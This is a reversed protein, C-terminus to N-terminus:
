KYCTHMSLSYFFQTNELITKEIKELYKNHTMEVLKCYYFFLGNDGVPSRNEGQKAYFIKLTPDGLRKHRVIEDWGFGRM